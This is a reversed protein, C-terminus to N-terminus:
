NYANYPKLNESASPLVLTFKQGERVTLKTTKLWPNLKRLIKINFGQDSAWDALNPISGEVAVKQIRFPEYLEMKSPYYGYAEPNEYILKAALLRFVYRGTESNQYTDFYHETEQWKMDEQVGGVGRNYAATTMVWDKLVTNADKLYRCAAHTSKEIDLREDIENNMELGYLRATEPMFQWFGQAGVPSVAQLLNSEIIALYKFDDPVGEEKLIREIEPFYRNARKLCSVWGSQYYATMLVERDLRERLDEDQLNITTGAFEMSQPLNPFIVATSTVTEKPHGSKRLPVQKNECAALLITLLLFPFINNM